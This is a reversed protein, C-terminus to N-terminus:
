RTVVTMYEPVVRSGIQYAHPGVVTVVCGTARARRLHDAAQRRTITASQQGTTRWELRAAGARDVREVGVVLKSTMEDAQGIRQGLFYGRAMDLTVHPAMSTVYSSGDEYTVRYATLQEYSMNGAGLYFTAVGGAWAVILGGEPADSM